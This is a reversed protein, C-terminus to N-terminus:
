HQHHGVSNYRECYEGDTGNGSITSYLPTSGVTDESVSIMNSINHCQPKMWELQLLSRSLIHGSMILRDRPGSNPPLIPRINKRALTHAHPSYTRPRTSAISSTNPKSGPLNRLRKRNRKHTRKLQGTVGAPLSPRDTLNIENMHNREKWFRRECM